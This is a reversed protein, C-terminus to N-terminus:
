KGVKGLKTDTKPNATMDQVRVIVENIGTQLDRLDQIYLLSLIKAANQLTSKKFQFGPDINMIPFPKGQIIKSNPNKLCDANLRKRVLKSCAKLMLLHNPHQPVRLMKAVAHIGDKFENSDFDLNDLPNKSKLQPLKAEQKTKLKMEKVNQSYEEVNNEAELWIAHGILWELQSIPSGSVPCQVDACYKAFTQPWSENKLDRLDKRDEITYRRIKQEELWVTVKRFHLPENVDVKDWEVFNLAQLRRKFM